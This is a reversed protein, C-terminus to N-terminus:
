LHIFCAASSKVIMRILNVIRNAINIDFIDVPNVVFVRELIIRIHLVDVRAAVHKAIFFIVSKDTVM